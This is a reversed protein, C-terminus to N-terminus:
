ISPRHQISISFQGLISHTPVGVLMEHLIGSFIFVFAGAVQGSFGRGVLPTFVHRKM